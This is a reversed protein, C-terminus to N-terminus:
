YELIITNPGDNLLKIEMHAGFVGELVELDYKRLEINFQRYLKEAEMPNMAKTFSPRNGSNADAYLTFQSISLISGNVSFINLNMKGSGDEFVRLNAIKKAMRVNIDISDGDTYGVLLLYGKGIKSIIQNNVICSAEKVRQLVVRM